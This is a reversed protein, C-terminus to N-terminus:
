IRKKLAAELCKVSASLDVGKGLIPKWLDGKKELRDFINDITFDTPKLGKKVERWELPTSVTAEPTPRLSYPAALTQGTRNQLWDLYIKNKRKAPSREISTIEPLRRHVLQVLLGAFDRVQAYEYKAHLPIYIHIGSKGSTKPYSVECSMDLVEKTTQAVEIVEDFTNMGPDLDIVYFDPRDLSQVRSNWPNLEIVGLNAVYLLTEKNNVVVYRIDKDNSDSHIMATEVFDPLHLDSSDKQYFGPKAAGNPHRNLVMPRDKLYPLITDSMREYYDLMEGKTREPKTFYIKDPHTVAVASKESAQEHVAKEITIEQPKKDDRFGLVTPHRMHGGETWETFQVEVIIQPKVWTANKEVERPVSAVSKEVKMPQLREYVDKLSTGGMGGGTHGVYYWSRGKRVALILSGIYKRSRRPTTYGIVVAEQRRVTKVKLWDRSRKGSLYESDARKAMIGELHQEEAVRFFDVGAKLVHDSYRIHASKPLIKKLMKKREILPKARMDVADYFPLDFACFILAAKERQVNQMLQFSPKGDTGLAVLEGDIVADKKIRAFAKCIEPYKKSVDLGNRSILRAKGNEIKVMLRYGDWKIEFLWEPDDFPGDALTALMPELLPAPIKM